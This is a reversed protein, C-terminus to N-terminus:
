QATPVNTADKVFTHVNLTHIDRHSNRNM